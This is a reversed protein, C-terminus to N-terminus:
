PSTSNPPLNLNITPKSSSNFYLVNGYSVNWVVRMDDEGNDKLNEIEELPIGFQPHNSMASTPNNLTPVDENGM